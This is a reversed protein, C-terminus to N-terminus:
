SRVSETQSTRKKENSWIPYLGAIMALAQVGRLIDWWALEVNDGMDRVIRCLLLGATILLAVTMWFVHNAIRQRKTGRMRRIFVVALRLAIYVTFLSLGSLLGRYVDSM